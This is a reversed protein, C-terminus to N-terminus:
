SYKHYEFCSRKREEALSLFALSARCAVDPFPNGLNVFRCFGDTDRICSRAKVIKFFQATSQDSKKTM